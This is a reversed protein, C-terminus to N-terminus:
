ELGEDVSTADSDVIESGPVLQASLLRRIDVLVVLVEADRAQIAGVIGSELSRIAEFVREDRAQIAKIIGDDRSHIAQIIRETHVGLVREFDAVTPPPGFVRDIWGLLGVMTSIGGIVYGVSNYDSPGFALSVVFTLVLLGVGVFLSLRSLTGWHRWSAVWFSFRGTCMMSQVLVAAAAVALLLLVSIVVPAALFNYVVFSM